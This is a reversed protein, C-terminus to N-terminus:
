CHTETLKLNDFKALTSSDMSTRSFSLSTRSISMCRASAGASEATAQLETGASVNSLPDVGGSFFPGKLRQPPSLILDEVVLLDPVEAKDRHDKCFNCRRLKFFALFPFLADFVILQAVKLGWSNFLLKYSLKFKRVNLPNTHRFHQQIQFSIGMSFIKEFRSEIRLALLAKKSEFLCVM